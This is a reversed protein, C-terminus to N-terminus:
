LINYHTKKFFALQKWIRARAESLFDSSAKLAISLLSHIVSDYSILVTLPWPFLQLPFYEGQRAFSLLSLPFM